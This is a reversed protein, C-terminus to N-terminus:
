RGIGSSLNEIPESATDFRDVIKVDVDRDPVFSLQNDPVTKISIDRYRSSQSLGFNWDPDNVLHTEFLRTSASDPVFSEDDKYKFRYEHEWGFQSSHVSESRRVLRYPLIPEFDLYVRVSVGPVSPSVTVRFVESAGTDVKGAVSIAGAQGALLQQISGHQISGYMEPQELPLQRPIGILRCIPKLEDLWPEPADDYCYIDMSRAKSNADVITSYLYRGDFIETKTIYLEYDQHFGLTRTLFRGDYALLAEVPGFGSVESGSKGDIPNRQKVVCNSKVRLNTTSFHDALQNYRNEVISFVEADNAGALRRSTTSQAVLTSGLGVIQLCIVWRVLGSNGAVLKAFSFASMECIPRRWRASLSRM